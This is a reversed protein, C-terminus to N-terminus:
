NTGSGDLAGLARDLWEPDLGMYHDGGPVELYTVHEFGDEKMAQSIARSQARNFDRTGTLLVLRSDHRVRELRDRPPEQFSPPWHTGPRDPVAVPRYFDCGVVMLGGRFVDPFLMTLASAIRGGGSYGAVYIRDPALEYLANMNYVADLALAVRDWTFRQNGANNAGVWLLHHKRLVDSVDTRQTAGYPGPSVWVLLGWPEGGGATAGRDAYEEPVFVEFTEASLDIEGGNMKSPDATELAERDAGYRDLFTDVDGLPSRGTLAVRYRGVRDVAPQVVPEDPLEYGEEEQEVGVLDSLEGAVGSPDKELRDLFRAAEAKKGQGELLVTLLQRTRESGPALVLAAELARVAQGANGELYYTRAVTELVQAREAPGLVGPTDLVKQYEARADAAHGQALLADGNELWGDISARPNSEAARPSVVDLDQLQVTVPEGAGEDLVEIWGEGPRFGEAEVAIWWIGPELFAFSWRGKKGTVEPRPVSREHEAEPTPKVGRGSVPVLRVTAGALPAGDDDLVVGKVRGMPRSQDTELQEEEQARAPPCLCLGVFLALALFCVVAISCPQIRKM